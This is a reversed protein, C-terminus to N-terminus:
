SSFTALQCLESKSEHGALMVRVKVRPLLIWTTTSSVSLQSANMPQQLNRDCSIM